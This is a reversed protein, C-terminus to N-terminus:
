RIRRETMRKRSHGFQVCFVKACNLAGKRKRKKFNGTTRGSDAFIFL